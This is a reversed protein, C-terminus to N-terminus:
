VSNYGGDVVLAHGTVYSADDSLLFAVAAAIEEPRGLRKLPYQKAVQEREEEPDEGGEFFETAVGVDVFGPCVANARVGYPGVESAVSRTFNVVAGKSLSYISQQPFGILGGLSAVNVIAGAEKEKLVPAAARCGNWVGRVNVDLVNEYSDESTDELFQRPHTIGANNVLGDLGRDAAVELLLEEFASGDRVDLSHFTAEGGEDRIAEVTERGAEEEVDTVVVEAGEDACRKAIARGIGNAAGTIFVTQNELRM